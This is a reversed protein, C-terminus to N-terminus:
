RLTPGETPLWSMSAGIDTIESDVSVVGSLPQVEVTYGDDPDNRDALRVVTHEAEGNAFVYSYVIRADEPADPTEDSPVVAEGYQPTWAWAIMTNEPLKVDTAFGPATLGQFRGGQDFGEVEGGAALTEREEKTLRRAAARLEEDAVARAEPDSFITAGPEGVEIRYSSSDLNYAVRVTVNRMAAEAVLYKYTLALERAAGRQQVDFIANMSPLGIAVVV